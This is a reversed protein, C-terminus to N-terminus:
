SYFWQKNYNINTNKNSHILYKNYCKENKYQLSCKYLGNTKLIQRENFCIIM